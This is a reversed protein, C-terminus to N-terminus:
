LSLQWGSRICDLNSNLQILNFWLISHKNESPCDTRTFIISCHLANQWWSTGATFGWIGNIKVLALQGPWFLLVKNMKLSQWLKSKVYMNYIYIKCNLQAFYSKLTITCKHIYIHIIFLGANM